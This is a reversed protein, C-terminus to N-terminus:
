YNFWQNNAFHSIGNDTGFWVSGDLDIAITNVKNDTLGDKVSFNEWNTGNLKSVGWHTGFWINGSIDKAITYVTDCILGDTRTYSTWDSKTFESKHLAAGGSTGYWQSNDPNILVAYVINSGLGNAWPLSVTTAGSVADTYKFKSVGGGTTAAYVFGSGSVAVESIKYKSLIEEGARGTFRNWKNDKLISLGKSTGIFKIQNQDIAIARVTDSLLGNETGNYRTTTLTNSVKDFTSLGNNSAIWIKNPDGSPEDSLDALAESNFAQDLPYTTWKAGDFSVLGKDTAIWKIGQNDVIIKHITKSPLSFEESVPTDQQCGSYLLIGVLIM